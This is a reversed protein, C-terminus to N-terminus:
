TGSRGIILKNLFGKAKETHDPVERLYRLALPNTTDLRLSRSWADRALELRRRGLQCLGEFNSFLVFERYPLAKLQVLAQKWKQAQAKELAQQFHPLFEEYTALEELYHAARNAHPELRLSERWASEAMKFEGLRYSCLGFVNWGQWLSPELALCRGLVKKAETLKRQNALAVGEQYLTNGLTAKM